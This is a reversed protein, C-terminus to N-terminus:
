LAEKKKRNKANDHNKNMKNKPRRELIFVRCPELIEVFMISLLSTLVLAVTWVVHIGLVLSLLFFLVFM